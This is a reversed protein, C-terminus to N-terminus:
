NVEQSLKNSLRQILRKSINDIEIKKDNLSFDGTIEVFEEGKFQILKKKELTTKTILFDIEIETQIRVGDDILIEATSISILNINLTGNFGITKVDYDIWNGLLKLFESSNKSDKFKNLNSKKEVADISINSIIPDYKESIINQNQCGSIFLLFLLLILYKAM